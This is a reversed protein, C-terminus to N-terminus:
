YHLVQLYQLQLALPVLVTGTFVLLVEKISRPVEKVLTTSTFIKSNTGTLVQKICSPSRLNSGYYKKYQLIKFLLHYTNLVQLM